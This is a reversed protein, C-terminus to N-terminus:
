NSSYRIKEGTKFEIFKNVATIDGKATNKNKKGIQVDNEIKLILTKLGDKQFEEELNIQEECELKHLYGILQKAYRERIQKGDRVIYNYLWNEFNQGM